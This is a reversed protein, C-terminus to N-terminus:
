LGKPILDPYHSENSGGAYYIGEKHSNNRMSDTYEDEKYSYLFHPIKETM